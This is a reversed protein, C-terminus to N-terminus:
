ERNLPRRSPRIPKVCEPSPLSLIGCSVPGIAAWAGSRHAYSPRAMDAPGIQPRGQHPSPFPSIPPLLTVQRRLRVAQRGGAHERARAERLRRSRHGAAARLRRGAVLLGLVLRGRGVLVDARALVGALALAAALGAVGAARALIGALALAAAGRGVHLVRAL